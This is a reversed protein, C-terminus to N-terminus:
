NDIFLFTIMSFLILLIVFSMTILGISSIKDYNQKYKYVKKKNHISNINNNLMNATTPVTTNSTNSGVKLILNKYISSDLLRDVRNMKSFRTLNILAIIVVISFLLPVIINLLPIDNIEIDIADNLNEKALILLIMIPILIIMLHLTRSIFRLNILYLNRKKKMTTDFYDFVENYIDYFSPSIKKYCGQKKCISTKKKAQMCISEPICVEFKSGLNKNNILGFQLYFIFGLSILSLSILFVLTFNM